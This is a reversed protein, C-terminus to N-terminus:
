PLKPRTWILFLGDPEIPVPERAFHHCALDAADDFVSAAPIRVEVIGVVGVVNPAVFVYNRPKAPPHGRDDDDVSSQKRIMELEADLRCVLRALEKSGSATNPM